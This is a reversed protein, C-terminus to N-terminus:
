DFPTLLKGIGRWLPARRPLRNSETLSVQCAPPRARGPGPCPGIRRVGESLRSLRPESARRRSEETARLIPSTRGDRTQRNRRGSIRGPQVWSGSKKSSAVRAHTTARSRASERLRRRHASAGGNASSRARPLAANGYATSRDLGPRLRVLYSRGRGRRARLAFIQGRSHRREVESSGCGNHEADPLRTHTGCRGRRRRPKRTRIARCRPM